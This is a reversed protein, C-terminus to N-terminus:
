LAVAATNSPVSIGASNVGIVRFELQRRQSHHSLLAHTKPAIGAQEWSGFAGGNSQPNRFASCPTARFPMSHTNATASAQRSRERDNTAVPVLDSGQM